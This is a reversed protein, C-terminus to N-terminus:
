GFISFNNGSSFSKSSFIDSMSLSKTDPNDLNPISASQNASAKKAVTYVKENGNFTMDKTNMNEVMTNFASTPKKSMDLNSKNVIGSISSNADIVNGKFGILSSNKNLDTLFETGKGNQVNKMIGNINKGVMNPTLESGFGGMLSSVLGNSCKQKSALTPLLGAFLGNMMNLNSGDYPCNGFITNMAYKNGISAGVNGKLKNMISATSFSMNLKDLSSIQKAFGLSKLSALIKTPNTVIGNLMPTFSGSNLAAPINNTVNFISSENVKLFDAQKASSATANSVSMRSNPIAM